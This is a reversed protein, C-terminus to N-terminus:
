PGSGAPALALSSLLGVLHNGILLMKFFLAAASPLAPTLPHEPFAQRPLSGPGCGSHSPALWAFAQPFRTRLWPFLELVQSHFPSCHSTIILPAAPVRRVPGCALILIQTKGWTCQPFPWLGLTGGELPAMSCGQGAKHKTSAGGGCLSFYYPFYASLKCHVLCMLM